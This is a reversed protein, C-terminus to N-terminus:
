KIEVWVGQLYQYTYFKAKVWPFRREKNYYFDGIKPKTPPKDYGDNFFAFKEMPYVRVKDINKVLYYNWIEDYGWAKEFNDGYKFDM